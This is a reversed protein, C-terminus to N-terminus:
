LHFDALMESFTIFEEADKEHNAEDGKDEM